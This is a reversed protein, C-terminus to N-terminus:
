DTDSISEPCDSRDESVDGLDIKAAKEVQEPLEVVHFLHVAIM